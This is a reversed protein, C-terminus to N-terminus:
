EEKEPLWWQWWYTPPESEETSQTTGSGMGGCIPPCEAYIKFIGLAAIALALAATVVFILTNKKM